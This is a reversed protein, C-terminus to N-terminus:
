FISKRWMKQRMMCFMVRRYSRTWKCLRRQMLSKLLLYKPSKKRGFKGKNKMLVFPGSSNYNKMMILNRKKSLFMWYVWSFTSTWNKKQNSTSSPLSLLNAVVEVTKLTSTYFILTSNLYSITLEKSSSPISNQSKTKRLLQSFSTFRGM